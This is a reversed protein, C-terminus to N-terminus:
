FSLLTMDSLIVIPPSVVLNIM